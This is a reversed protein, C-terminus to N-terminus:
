VFFPKSLVFVCVVVVVIVVLDVVFCFLLVFRCFSIGIQFHKTLLQSRRSDKM